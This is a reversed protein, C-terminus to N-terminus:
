KDEKSCSCIYDEICSYIYQQMWEQIEDNKLVNTLVVSAIDRSIDKIAINRGQKYHDTQSAAIVQSHNEQIAKASAEQLEKEITALLASKETSKIFQLLKGYEADYVVGNKVSFKEDEYLLDEIPIDLISSLKVRREFPIVKVKGKEYDSIVQVGVGLWKGLQTQNIKNKKRAKRIAEGIQQREELNEVTLM